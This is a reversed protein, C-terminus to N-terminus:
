GFIREIISKKYKIAKVSELAYIDLYGIENGNNKFVIKGVTDGQKVPSPLLRNAEISASLNIDGKKLTISYSDLNTCLVNSKAGNIVGLSIVYDGIDALRVNEYQSFGLDLMKAHDSWDSPANLTVAIIKVGDREACSVLCRGSKKTFGTKIGVAGDYTRLLKNHNILVRSGSEGLPIVKKYTSVIDFFVPNKIAYSALLALEKATTYHESDDLGHPNTFHTNVLGLKLATDNMLDVFANVSGCTGYALAVAADNASELMLAYLLEEVTLSEGAQLYISSGEVGTMEPTIKIIKELPSNEIAVIATMIKTTSAMSLRTDSNKEYIVDSSDAEIAVAGKASIEIAYAGISMFLVLFTFSLVYTFFRCM